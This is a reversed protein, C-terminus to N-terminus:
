SRKLKSREAFYVTIIIIFGIIIRQIYNQVGMLNLFNGVMAIVLAGFLVMIPKGRGGSLSGGGIVVSAIANNVFTTGALPSGVMLRSALILGAFASLMAGVAYASFIVSKTNIGALRAAERNGGTAYLSRGYISKSMIFQLFLTLLVMIWIPIAIGLLNGGGLMAFSDSKIFISLSHSYLYKVGEAITMTALTAIFPAIQLVTVLFGNFSGFVLGIVLVLVSAILPSMGDQMFGAVFVGAVGAIAGVSLDIGGTIIPLLLGISIIANISAQRLLNAINDRSLFKPQIVTFIVSLVIVLIVLMYENMWNHNKNKMRMSDIINKM